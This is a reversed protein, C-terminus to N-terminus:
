SPCGLEVADKFLKSLKSLNELAKPSLYQLPTKGNLDPFYLSAGAKLLADIIRVYRLVEQIPMNLSPAMRICDMAHHLPTFGRNFDRIELFRKVWGKYDDDCNDHPCALIMEVSDANGYRVALMLPTRGYAELPFRQERPVSDLLLKLIQTNKDCLSAAFHLPTMNSNSKLAPIAAAISGNRLIREVWKADCGITAAHLATMQNVSDLFDVTVSLSMLYDFIQPKNFITCCKPLIAVEPSQLFAKRDKEDTFLDLLQKASDVNGNVCAFIFEDKINEITRPNPVEKSGDANPADYIFISDEDSIIATISEQPTFPLPMCEEDSTLEKDEDTQPPLVESAGTEKESAFDASSSLHFRHLSFYLLSSVFLIGLFTGTAVMLRFLTPRTTKPKEIRESPPRYDLKLM